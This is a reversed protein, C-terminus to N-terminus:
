VGPTTGPMKVRLPHKVQWNRFAECASVIDQLNSHPVNHDILLQRYALLVSVALENSARLIYVPESQTDSQVLDLTVVSTGPPLDKRPNTVIV